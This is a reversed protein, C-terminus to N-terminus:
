NNKAGELIWTKIGARQNTTLPLYGVPPMPSAGLQGEIAWILRSTTTDSPNVVGPVVVNTWSTLSLSGAKTKDDHCGSFSCKVNFIPQIHKSFSVQSGPIINKDLDESTVTDKCGWFCTLTIFIFFLKKM